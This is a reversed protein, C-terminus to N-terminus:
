EEQNFEVADNIQEETIITVYELDYHVPTCLKEYDRNDSGFEEDIYINEHYLRAKELAEEENRAEIAILHVHTEIEKLEFTFYFAM